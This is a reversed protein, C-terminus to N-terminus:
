RQLLYSFDLLFGILAVKLAGHMSRWGQWLSPAYVILVPVVAGLFFLASFALFFTRSSSDVWGIVLGLTGATMLMPSTGDNKGYVVEWLVRLVGFVMLGALVLGLATFITLFIIEM